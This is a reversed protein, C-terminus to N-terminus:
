LLIFGKFRIGLQGHWQKNMQLTLVTIERNLKEKLKEQAPAIGEM